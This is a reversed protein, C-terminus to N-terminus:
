LNALRELVWVRARTLDALCAALADGAYMDAPCYEDREGIWARQTETLTEWMPGGEHRSRIREWTITLDRNARSLMPDNCILFEQPTRALGCDFGPDVVPLTKVFERAVDKPEGGVFYFDAGRLGSEYFPRQVDGTMTEVAEAVRKFLIEAPLGPARLYRALATAYPGNAGEGDAATRGPETSYAFLVGRTDGAAALGGGASRASSPLPNDRCADLVTFNVSNEAAGMYRTILGARVGQAWVDAEEAPDVDVPMLYNIGQSQVGHGAFYFFGAAQPGAAKLRRGFERIAANMEAQGADMVTEVDFGVDRLAAEMLVADRAPNELAWGTKEYAANGIVLAVRPGSPAGQAGAASTMLVAAFCALVWRPM